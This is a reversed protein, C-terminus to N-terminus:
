PAVDTDEAPSNVVPVPIKYKRSYMISNRKTTVKVAHNALKSVYKALRKYDNKSARVRSLDINGFKTIYEFIKERPVVCGVVAHYHERGNEKGFDINGIYPCELSNLFRSISQRRTGVSTRALYDDTFTMTLFTCDYNAVMWEIKASLRVVRARNAKLIRDCEQCFEDELLFYNEYVYYLFSEDYEPPLEFGFQSCYQVRRIQNYLTLISNEAEMELIKKKLEYNPKM